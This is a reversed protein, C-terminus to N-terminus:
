RVRLSRAQVVTCGAITLQGNQLVELAARKDLEYSAPSYRVFRHLEAHQHMMQLLAPTLQTEDVQVSPPNNQYSITALTGDVRDKGIAQLTRDLYAKLSEASRERAKRRRAIRTEEERIAAAEARYRLHVLAIKELKDDAKLDLEALLQEIEPTLEGETEALLDDLAAYEGALEYGKIATTM